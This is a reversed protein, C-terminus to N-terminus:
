VDGEGFRQFIKSISVIRMFKIVFRTVVVDNKARGPDPNRVTLTYFIADGPQAQVRSATKVLSVSDGPRDLPIDIQVPTPDNLTFAEGFSGDVIVFARGDPRSLLALQDSSVVSPATYPAPPTVILRYDGLNTLPFWFEGPGMVTVNGAGDRVPAGSIVTSPWPTTADEAFVQALQGTRADVLSVTAGDVPAGTESDFVVGFPDALVDVTTSLVTAEGARDLVAIEIHNGDELSLVCDEAVASPPMRRTPISGTFLGSNEATEYVTVLERDGTESTLLVSVSDMAAPDLNASALSITFYLEGGARIVDTEVANVSVSASSGDTSAATRATGCQTAYFELTSSSGPGYTAIWPLNPDLQLAVLNSQGSYTRGGYEWQASAVNEITQAQAIGALVVLSLLVAFLAAAAQLTLSRITTM